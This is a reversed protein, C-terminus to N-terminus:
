AAPMTITMSTVSVTDGSTIGVTNFNIDEGSTGVTGKFVTTLPTDAANSSSAIFEAATGSAVASTEDTIAAATATGSSSSGFATASFTLIALQAAEAASYIELTGGASGADLADVLADCMSDRVATAIANIAM